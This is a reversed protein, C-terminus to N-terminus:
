EDATRTSPYQRVNGPWIIRVGGNAGNSSIFSCAGGGGYTGATGGQRTGDGTSLSKGTGGALGGSGGGGGTGVYTGSVGAAGSTGEGLLGVGGGGGGANDGVASTGGGGGGGGGAGATATGVDNAGDGGNGSYGGAGGGGGPGNNGLIGGGGDGGGDGVYSGGVSKPSTQAGGAGGGGKVTTANIFYSDTGPNGNIGGTFSNYGGGQGGQGVQVSYTAGPTVSINNKYGLGGGAGGQFGQSWNGGGGGGGVAVVSVSTVGTPATWNYIGPTTFVTQGVAAGSKLLIPVELQIILNATTSAEGIRTVYEGSGSPPTETIDGPNTSLYYVKGANLGSTSLLGVILCRVEEGALKSTQAFGVVTAQDLTGSAYARGVKGDSARAYLAEGQTVDEFAIAGFGAVSYVTRDAMTTKLDALVGLLGEYNPSYPENDRVGSM